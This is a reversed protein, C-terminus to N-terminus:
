VAPDTPDVSTAILTATPKGFPMPFNDGVVVTTGEDCHSYIWYADRVTLRVCGHSAAQGLKNYEDVPVTHVPDTSSGAAVSHFYIGNSADIACAYQGWSPGLLEKLVYHTGLSYTGSPTETDALGVSCVMARVPRTYNGDSDQAYVTVVNNTRDVYLMYPGGYIDTLDVLGTGDSDVYIKEGNYVTWTDSLLEGNSNTYYMSGNQLFRGSVAIGEDSFFYTKGDITTAGIAGEFTSPDFYYRDGNYTQWGSSLAGDKGMYYLTSYIWTPGGNGLFLLGDANFKYYKGSINYIGDTYAAYDTTSFYLLWDKYAQWGSKLAGDSSFLYIKGDITQLGSKEVKIGNTDFMYTRRGISKFGTVAKYTKTDFYMEGSPTEILGCALAGDSRIWYIDGDVTQAGAKDILIDNSDFLFKQGDIEYIGTAAAGDTKPDFYRKGATFEYWGTYITGDSYVLYRKGNKIQQSLTGHDAVSAALEEVVAEADSATESSTSQVETEESSTNQVNAEEAEDAFAAGCLSITMIAALIATLIKKSM